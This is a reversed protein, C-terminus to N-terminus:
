DGKKNKLIRSAVISSKQKDSFVFPVLEALDETSLAAFAGKDYRDFFATANDGSQFLAALSLLTEYQALQLQVEAGERLLDEACRGWEAAPHASREEGFVARVFGEYVSDFFTTQLHFLLSGGFLEGVVDKFKKIASGMARRLDKRGYEVSSCGSSGVLKQFVDEKQGSLLEELGEDKFCELSSPLSSTRHMRSIELGVSLDCLRLSYDKLSGEAPEQDFFRRVKNRLVGRIEEEQARETKSLKELIRCLTNMERSIIRVTGKQLVQYICEGVSAAEKEGYSKKKKKIEKQEEYTPLALKGRGLSGLKTILNDATWQDVNVIHFVTGYFVRENYALVSEMPYSDINSALNEKVAKLIDQSIEGFQNIGVYIEEEHATAEVPTGLIQGIVGAALQKDGREKEEGMKTYIQMALFLHRGGIKYASISQIGKKVLLGVLSAKASEMLLAREQVYGKAEMFALLRSYEEDVAVHDVDVKRGGVMERSSGEALVKKYLDMAKGRIVKRDELTVCMEFLERASGVDLEIARQKQIESRVKQLRKEQIKLSDPQELLARERKRLGRLDGAIKEIEDSIEQVRRRIERVDSAEELKRKVAEMEMEM